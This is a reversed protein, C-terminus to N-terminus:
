KIYLNRELYGDLFNLVVVREDPKGSRNHVDWNESISKRALKYKMWKSLDDFGEENKLHQVHRIVSLINESLSALHFKDALRLGALQTQPNALFRKTNVLYAEVIDILWCM